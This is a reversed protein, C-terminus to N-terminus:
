NVSIRKLVQLFFMVKVWKKDRIQYRLYWSLDQYKIKIKSVLANWVPRFMQLHILDEPHSSRISPVDLTQGLGSPIRSSGWGPPGQQGGQTHLLVPSRVLCCLCVHGLGQSCRHHEVAAASPWGQAPASWYTLHVKFKLTNKKWPAYFSCLFEPEFIYM